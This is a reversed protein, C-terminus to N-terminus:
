PTGRRRYECVSLQSFWKFKLWMHLRVTKYTWFFAPFTSLPTTGGRSPRPCRFLWQFGLCERFLWNQAVHSFYLTRVTLKWKWTNWFCSRFVRPLTGRWTKQSTNASNHLKKSPFSTQLLVFSYFCLKDTYLRKQLKLSGQPPIFARHSPYIAGFQKLGTKLTCKQNDRHLVLSPKSFRNEM